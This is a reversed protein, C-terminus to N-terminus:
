LLTYTWCFAAPGKLPAELILSKVGIQKHLMAQAKAVSSLKYLRWHEVEKIKVFRTSWDM